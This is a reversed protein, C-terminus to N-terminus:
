EDQGSLLDRFFRGLGSRVSGTRKVEYGQSVTDTEETKPKQEQQKQEETQKVEKIEEVPKETVPKSEVSSEEEKKECDLVCQGVMSTLASLQPKRDSLGFSIGSYGRAMIRNIGLREGFLSVLGSQLSAGGTLVCGAALRDKNGSILIQNLVNYIIEEYRCRSVIELEKQRIKTEEAEELPIDKSAIDMTVANGGLPITALHQLSGSHYISVSTLSHGIDVLLCGNQKEEPTLINGVTLPTAIIGMLKVGAKTMASRVAFRIRQQAVILQHHAVLQRGTRGTPNLCDIGDLTYGKVETGLVDYGQLHYQLSEQRLDALIDSKVSKGEELVISPSYPHNHMSLANVGVYAADIGRCDDGKVRNSLKTVLSKIITAAAEIDVICGKRVCGRAPETEIAAIEYNGFQDRWAAASCIRSTGIQIACVLTRRM